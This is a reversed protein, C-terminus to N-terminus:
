KAGVEADGMSIAPFLPAAESGETPPSERVSDMVRIIQEYPVNDAVLLSVREENPHEAKISRLLNSLSDIDVKADIHNISTRVGSKSVLVKNDYLSIALQFDAQTSSPTNSAVPITLNLTHLKSASISSGVLLFFVMVAFVDIMSVINLEGDGYGKLKRKLRRTRRSRRQEVEEYEPEAQFLSTVAFEKLAWQV